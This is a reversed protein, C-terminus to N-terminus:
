RLSPSFRSSQIRYRKQSSANWFNNVSGLKGPARDLGRWDNVICGHRRCLVNVKSQRNHKTPFTCYNCKKALNKEWHLLHRLCCLLCLSSAIIPLQTLFASSKPVIRCMEMWGDKIRTQTVPPSSGLCKCICETTHVNPMQKTSKIYRVYYYLGQGCLM